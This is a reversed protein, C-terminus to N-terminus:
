LNTVLPDIGSLQSVYDLLEKIKEKDDINIKVTKNCCNARIKLEVNAPEDLLCSTAAGM